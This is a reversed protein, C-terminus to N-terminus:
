AGLLSLFRAASEIDAALTRRRQAAEADEGWAEIQFTEDLQSAAFATPADVRGELLALAIVLSGCAATLTHVATLRFNDLAAVAATFARLSVTSQGTPIVGSTVALAADYRLTAWDLLQNTLNDVGRDFEHNGIVAVDVGIASMTMLEVAGSYLNFIPAGQFCDGSDVHLVRPGASARADAVLTAIRAVGGFPANPQLLGLGEDNAAHPYGSCFAMARELAAALSASGPEFSGLSCHEYRPPIRCASTADGARAAGAQRCACPQAYERGDKTVITFGTGRCSECAPESM